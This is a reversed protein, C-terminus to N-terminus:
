VTSSMEGLDPKIEAEMQEQVSEIRAELKEQCAVMAEQCTKLEQLNVGMLAEMKEQHTDMKTIM